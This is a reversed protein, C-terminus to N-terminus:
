TPVLETMGVGADRTMTRQSHASQAFRCDPMMLRQGVGIGKQSPKSKRQRQLQRRRRAQEEAILATECDQIAKYKALCADGECAQRRLSDCSQSALVGSPEAVLMWFVVLLVGLVRNSM